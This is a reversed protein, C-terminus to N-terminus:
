QSARVSPISSLKCVAEISATDLAGARVLTPTSTTLDVVTSAQGSPTPGGTLVLDVTNGFIQALETWSTPNDEGSINASTGTIPGGLGQAIALAVPHDPMRVAVTDGGGAVEQPLDASRKVVLTLPGPWFREMLRRGVMSIDTTVKSIHEPSGLLVPMAMGAPRSKISFIRNVALTSFVDAGLGFLTDTPFAIVGGGRLVGVAKDIEATIAEDM